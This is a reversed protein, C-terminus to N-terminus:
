RWTYSIGDIELYPELQRVSGLTVEESDIEPAVGEEADVRAAEEADLQGTVTVKRYRKANIFHNGHVIHKDGTELDIYVTERTSLERESTRKVSLDRQITFQM